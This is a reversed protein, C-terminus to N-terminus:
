VGTSRSATVVANLLQEAYRFGAMRTREASPAFLWFATIALCVIAGVVSSVSYHEPLLLFGIAFGLLSAYTTARGIWRVAFLNREFGYQASEQEILPFEPRRGLPRVQSIALDILEDARSGDRREARVTLFKIGTVKQIATRRTQRRIATESSGDCRLLQTSPKGGWSRYLAPEIARGFNGVFLSLVFGGAGLSVLGLVGAVIPYKDFGLAVVLDAIPAIVLLGPALRARREYASLVPGLSKISASSV